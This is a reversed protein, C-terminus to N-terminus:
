RREHCRAHPEMQGFVVLVVVRVLGDLVLMKVVVVRMVLVRVARAIGATLRVAVSMPVLRQCVAVRVVRVNVVTVLV